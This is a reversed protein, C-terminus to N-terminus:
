RRFPWTDIDGPFERRIAVRLTTVVLRREARSRVSVQALGPLIAAVLVVIPVSRQTTRRQRGGGVSRSALM